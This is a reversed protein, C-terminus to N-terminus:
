RRLAANAIDLMEGTRVLKVRPRGQPAGLGTEHEDIARWGEWTVLGPCREATGGTVISAAALGIETAFGFGAAAARPLRDGFTLNLAHVFVPVGLREAEQFFGLFRDEGLSRGDINSAIEVGHLGMRVIEVLEDAALDPDQLPVTGMGLIRGPARECLRAISENVCRSYDRGAEPALKYDLLPPMPSVVEADVGQEDMAALRREADFFADQAAFRLQGSVLLRGGSETREIRPWGEAEPLTTPIVHAHM